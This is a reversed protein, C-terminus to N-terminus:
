LCRRCFLLDRGRRPGHFYGPFYLLYDAKGPERISSDEPRALLSLHYGALDTAISNDTHTTPANWALTIKNALAQPIWIMLLLLPAVFLPFKMPSPFM